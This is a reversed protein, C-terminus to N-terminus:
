TALWYGSDVPKHLRSFEADVLTTWKSHLKLFVNRQLNNHLYLIIHGPFQDEELVKGRRSKRYQWTNTM